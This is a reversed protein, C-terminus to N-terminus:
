GPAVVVRFGRRINWDSPNNRNRYACRVPWELDYFAGGRLVRPADGELSEKAPQRYSDRWQTGCWEWVNGSLDEVGYPSAGGPFCGVASTAKIGTKDMNCRNADFADGWPYTRGDAGRAAKEWEAETPLRVEEGSGLGGAERLRETLWRCFAVAEYWSVGVIPHNALDFPEGYGRPASIENRGKWAWGAQTWYGPERYGGAEEFARFQAVTVPYLGIHYGHALDLTHQPEEAEWALPDGKSGMTFPGPPVHCWAIGPLGTEPDLGVGPRPDGLRALARGAAARRQAEVQADDRLTALLVQIVQEKCAPTVGGPWADVVAEGALVAAQGPEGPARGILEWLAAGAAEDRQQVIGMYGITLLTVEHWNDDGVHAALLDVVPDIEQQGRQAIAVGALYEQFTLHIFGYQGAGRELLLGAYDRVDALLQRAAQEPESVGRRHYIEVLKRRVAERKVLGVGPSTEHMWLALPALVRVTEVVDLDRSPPRGLGRALNWHKLLTEVYKQYLEVRREPLVVGQRKMLVLITLLLPNAALRRVGPNRAVAALLEGRERAAERAAIAEDDQAVRELAGTWKEVFLAIEDEDFDVLTCEALGEAAPRVERYGVIRSTLLFKNGAPRHFTFFDVVRQVVMHRQALDRVEDLGDLMMLAEGRALAEDLLPGLPLKLGLDRYYEVIFRDLPVNRRALAVAYASLPLLVPLRDGLGLTQGDSVALRLALYKLFTTKGAGPDGLIMLGDQKRLLDLLPAPESLRQGMSEAEEASVKRGALRLERAWTEGEPLEIRAKLPVYLDVLPLRLPVRDSVGMGRFDLYRYRDALHQLYRGATEGLDPFPPAVVATESPFAAPAPFRFRGDTVNRYIQTDAAWFGGRQDSWTRFYVTGEESEPDFQVLSYSNHSQRTAYSAGAAFVWAKADPTQQLTLGTRSQHGHLVFDCAQTLLAECDARDSDHLWDFPHHLLAIRLEADKAMELADRVQREGLVLRHRDEEGGRALWASNLGLIAVQRGALPLHHVYFYHEDDFPLHGCTVDNVFAAYGQFRALMLQRSQPGALVENASDRGTIAAAIARASFSIQDRAVDHNGPVLFLRERPLGTAALLDDFFKAALAYEAPAGSYAIDGSVLILDPSFAQDRMRAQLDELLGRLVIDADWAPQDEARFHLDSLHVWSMTSM